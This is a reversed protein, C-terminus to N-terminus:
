EGGEILPITTNMLGAVGTLLDQEFMGKLLTIGIGNPSRIPMSFVDDGLKRLGGAEAAMVPSLQYIPTHINMNRVARIVEATRGAPCNEYGDSLIFVSEPNEQLLAVLGEALVTDGQPEPLVPVDADDEYGSYIVLSNTSAQILMDRTALAVSIPHNKQTTHGFMSKSTDVLIGINEFKVPLGDASKTANNGLAEQIEDTMGLEYGFKYLEVSQYKSPEFKVDKEVKAKKAARQINKKETTTMKGSKVVQKVEETKSVTGAHHNTRIGVLTTPPLDKGKSFDTKAAEYQKLLNLSPTLTSDRFVFRICEYADEPNMRDNLYKGIHKRLIREERETRTDKKMVKLVVGRNRQGWAHDLAERVMNRYKVAWLELKHTGLTCALIIRTTRHNNVKLHKLLGFTNLMRHPAINDALWTVMKFEQDPTLFTDGQRPSRLLNTFAVQRSYDTAGPLCVTLGYVSRDLQFINEHIKLNAKQQEERTNYHTARSTASGVSDLFGGFSERLKQKTEDTLFDSTLDSRQVASSATSILQESV